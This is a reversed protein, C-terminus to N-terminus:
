TKRSPGKQVLPILIIEINTIPGICYASEPWWELDFSGLQQHVVSSVDLLLLPRSRHLHDTNARLPSPLPVESPDQSSGLPSTPHLPHPPILEIQPIKWRRQALHALQSVDTLDLPLYLVPCSHGLPFHRTFFVRSPPWLCM